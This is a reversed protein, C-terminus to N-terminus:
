SRRVARRFFQFSERVTAFYIARSANESSRSEVCGSARAMSRWPLCCFIAGTSNSCKSDTVPWPSFAFHFPTSHRRPPRSQNSKSRRGPLAPTEGAHELLSTEWFEGGPRCRERIAERRAPADASGNVGSKGLDPDLRAIQQAAHNQAVVDAACNRWSRPPNPGSTTACFSAAWCIAAEVWVESFGADVPAGIVLDARPIRSRPRGPPQNKPLM